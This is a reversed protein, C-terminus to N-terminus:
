GTELTTNSMSTDFFSQSIECLATNLTARYLFPGELLKM